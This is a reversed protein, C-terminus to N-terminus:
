PNEVEAKPRATRGTICATCFNRRQYNAAQLAKSGAKFSYPKGCRKCKFYERASKSGM